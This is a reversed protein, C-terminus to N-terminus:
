RIIKIALVHLDCRDALADFAATPVNIDLSADERTPLLPLSPISSRLKKVDASELGM